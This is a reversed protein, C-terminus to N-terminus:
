KFWTEASEYMIQRYDEIVLNANTYDQNYSHQSKYAVVFIGARYAANIGNTSDEIVVCNEPLEGSMVAAKEFIEPHPKSEKLDTGSIKAVFMHNLNFRDFVMQITELRASSALVLKLGNKYYNEILDRVGPILDFEPDNDFLDKFIERKKALLQSKNIDTLNFRDILEQCVSDTSRGVFTKYLNEDVPIKFFQFMAFYAKRNLRETDVIVGDMDFLVAKLKM